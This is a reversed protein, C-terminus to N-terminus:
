SSIQPAFTYVYLTGSSYGAAIIETWGDGDLDEVAFKGATTMGTDVLIDKSYTWDSIDESKPTLIYHRGDDDGSLMLSPKSGAESVHRYFMKASGPSMSDGAVIQNAEFGSAIVRETFNGYPFNDPIEYVKVFGEETVTDYITALLDLKGDKNFDGVLCDFAQGANSSVPVKIINSSNSWVGPAEQVCYLNLAENWFEAAFICEYSIGLNNEFKLQRFHVDPGNTVLVHQNWDSRLPGGPNEFWVLEGRVPNAVTPTQFRATVADLFGDNNVDLFVTRHYYWNLTDL